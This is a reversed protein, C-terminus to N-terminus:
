AQHPSDEQKSPDEVSATKEVQGLSVFGPQFRFVSVQFRLM